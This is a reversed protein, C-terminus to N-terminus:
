GAVLTRLAFGVGLFVLFIGTAQLDQRWTSVGERSAGTVSVFYFPLDGAAVAVVAGFMGFFHFGLPIAILVAVCYYANGIAQYKSKGLTLLAPMTTAYMLTHWLGLALVPVMWSAAHYRPDYMKTVLFGGLYVMTCLMAAGALLARLRYRLFVMRFEAAPLHAMKAIFPYGVKQAFANIVARPIDSVSYAISYVGLLSFSILKGLILRDAQSAFFYFATSLLIWKGFHVLSHVSERDWCFANRIGPILRRYFSFCLRFLMSLIGGIVLAWISPYIWACGITILSGVIQSTIDLLSLRRVGMHRSMSLLNTSSFSNIICSLGLTPLLALLRPEHYILAMPWALILSVVFIGTGRIVQLTWVTNLFVPDDGRRSRIVSPGLGIDSMLGIGSLLTAVLSMLGFSEPMLLRTLILSNVVRLAMSCGYDLVTWLTARLATSELVKRALEDVRAHEKTVTELESLEPILLTADSALSDESYQSKNCISSLCCTHWWFILNFRENRDPPELLLHESPGGHRVKWM